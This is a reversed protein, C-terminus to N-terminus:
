AIKFAVFMRRSDALVLVVDSVALTLAASYSVTLTSGDGLNIGVLHGAPAVSVTAPLMRLGSGVVRKAVEAIAENHKM